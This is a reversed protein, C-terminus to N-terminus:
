EQPLRHAMQQIRPAINSLAEGLGLGLRLNAVNLIELMVLSSFVLSEAVGQDSSCASYTMGGDARQHIEIYRSADSGHVKASAPRHFDHYLHALGLSEALDLSTGCACTKGDKLRKTWEPGIEDHYEKLHSEALQLSREVEPGNLDRCKAIGRLTKLTSAADFALYLRSRLLRTLPYGPVDPFVKGNKTLSVTKRMLFEATLMTDLLMRGNSEAVDGLSIEAHAVIGRYQRCAKSLLGLCILLEM